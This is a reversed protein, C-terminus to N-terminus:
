NAIREMRIFHMSNTPLSVLPDEADPQDKAMIIEEELHEDRMRLSSITFFGGSKFTAVAVDNLWQVLLKGGNGYDIYLDVGDTGLCLQYDKTLRVTGHETFTSNWVTCTQDATPYPGIVITKHWGDGVQGEPYTKM